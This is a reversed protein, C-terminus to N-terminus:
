QDVYRLRAVGSVTITPSYAYGNLDKPPEVLYIVYLAGTSIDSISPTANESKYNTRLDFRQFIDICKEVRVPPYTFYNAQGNNTTDYSVIFPMNPPEFTYIEDRLVRFREMNDYALFGNWDGTETGNYEKYQFIQNKMPMVGNPARDYVLAIRLHRSEIPVPATPPMGGGGGQFPSIMWQCTIQLKVRVSKMDVVRGVRNWSGTGTTLKNILYISNSTSMDSTITADSVNVDVGKKVYRAGSRLSAPVVYTTQGTPVIRGGSVRVRKFPRVVQVPGGYRVRANHNFVGSTVGVQDFRRKM